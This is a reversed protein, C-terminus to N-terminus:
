QAYLKVHINNYLYNEILGEDLCEHMKKQFISNFIGVEKDSYSLHDYNLPLYNGAEDTIGVVWENVDEGPDDLKDVNPSISIIEFKSIKSSSKKM